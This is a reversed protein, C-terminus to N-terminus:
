RVIVSFGKPKWDADIVWCPGNGSETFERHAAQAKVRVFEGSKTEVDGIFGVISKRVKRYDPIKKVAAYTANTKIDAATATCLKEWDARGTAGRLNVYLKMPANTVASCISAQPLYNPAIEGLYGMTAVEGVGSMAQAFQESTFCDAAGAIVINTLAKCGSLTGHALAECKPAYLSTISANLFVCSLRAVEPIVVDGTIKTNYFATSGLQTLQPWDTGGLKVLKQCGTFAADGITKILASFVVNTLNKCGSFASYGISVARPAIVEAVGSNQAFQGDIRLLEPAVVRTTAVPVTIGYQSTSIIDYAAGSEEKFQTLDLEGSGDQYKALRIGTVGDITVLDTTFRWNGDAVVSGDYTWRCVLETTAPLDSTSLVTDAVIGEAYEVARTKAGGEFRYREWDANVAAYTLTFAVGDYVSYVINGDNTVCLFPEGMTLVVSAIHGDALDSEGLTLARYTVPALAKACVEPGITEAAAVGTQEYVSLKGEFQYGAEARYTIAVTASSLMEYKGEASPKVVAGNAKVLEVTAHEPPTVSAEITTEEEVEATNIIWCPGNGNVTSVIVKGNKTSATGLFGVLKDKIEDYGAVQRYVAYTDDSEIQKATVSCIGQWKLVNETSDANVYFRYLKSGCFARTPFSPPVENGLWNVTQLPADVYQFNNAAANLATTSGKITINTIGSTKAFAKGAFNTLAPAYLSKLGPNNCLAAGLATLSPVSVDGNVVFPLSNDGLTELNPWSPNTFTCSTSPVQYFASGGLYTVEESFFVGPAIKSCGGFADAGIYTAAGIQLNTLSTASQCCSAEVRLVDPAIISTVAPRGWQFVKNLRIIMKGTDTEFTSLDLDSSGGMSVSTVKLGTVGNIEDAAVTLTWAGDTASTEAENLTWGAHVNAALFAAAWAICIQKM